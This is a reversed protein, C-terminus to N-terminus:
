QARATTGAPAALPPNLQVPAAAAPAAATQSPPPPPVPEPWIPEPAASNSPGSSVISPASPNATQKRSHRASSAPPQANPNAAAAAAVGPLVPGTPEPNMISVAPISAATPFDINVLKSHIGASNPPATASAPATAGDAVPADPTAAWLAAYHQLYRDLTEASLNARVHSADRLPALAKCNQSTCGDRIALVHALFGFRDAELSRRLPLLIDDIDGSSGANNTMSSLLALRAAVYSSAAAASAPSAFLAKECAAEVTDGALADLCALPSGPALARASLAEARLEFAQREGGRQSVDPRDLFAWAVAAGLVASVAVLGARVVARAAVQSPLRLFALASLFILLAASGAAVWLRLASMGIESDVGLM